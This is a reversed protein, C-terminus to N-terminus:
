PGPVIFPRYRRHGGSCKKKQTGVYSKHAYIFYLCHILRLGSWTEIKVYIGLSKYMEELSLCVCTFIVLCHFDVKLWVKLSSKVFFDWAKISLHQKNM